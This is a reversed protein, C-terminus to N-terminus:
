DLSRSHKSLFFSLFVASLVAGKEIEFTEVHIKTKENRRREKKKTFEVDNVRVGCV